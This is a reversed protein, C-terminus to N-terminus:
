RYLGYRGIYDEVPLPVLYRISRNAAVRGRIQTGSHGLAPSDIEIFRDAHEPFTRAAWGEPLAPYGLRPVVAIECLELLRGPNRWGPLQQAAESSVIIVFRDGPREVTLQELSDVSYSPGDRKLEIDLLTFRPNDAIALEVMRRRHDPPTIPRDPKHPPQGAPMFLVGALDLSERTQEAILLHGYHVPDFTGGLIGWRAGTVGIRREM